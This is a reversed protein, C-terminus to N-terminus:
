NSLTGPKSGPHRPNSDRRARWSKDGGSPAAMARVPNGVCHVHRPPQRHLCAGEGIRLASTRSGAGHGSCWFETSRRSAGAKMPIGGAVAAARHELGAPHLHLEPRLGVGIAPDPDVVAGRVHSVHDQRHTRRAPLSHALLRRRPEDSPVAEDPHRLRACPLRPESSLSDSEDARSGTPGNGSASQHM